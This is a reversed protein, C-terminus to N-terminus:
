MGTSQGFRQAAAQLIKVTPDLEGTAAAVARYEKKAEDRDGFLDDARARVYLRAVRHSALHDPPPARLVDVPPAPGAPTNTLPPAVMSATQAPPRQQEATPPGSERYKHISNVLFGPFTSPYESMVWGRLQYAHLAEASPADANSLMEVSGDAMRRFVVQAGFGDFYLWEKREKSWVRGITHPSTNTAPDYLAFLQARPFSHALIRCVAANVQDCYGLGAVLVPWDHAAHPVAAASIMRVNARSLVYAIRAVDDHLDGRAAAKRAMKGAITYELYMALLKHAGHRVRLTEPPVFLARDSVRLLIWRSVAQPPTIALLAVALGALVPV